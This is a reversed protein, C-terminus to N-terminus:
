AVVPGDAEKAARMEDVERKMELAEARIRERAASDDEHLGDSEALLTNARAEMEDIREQRKHEQSPM